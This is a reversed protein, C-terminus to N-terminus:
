FCNAPVSRYGGPAHVDGVALLGVNDGCIGAYQGAPWLGLQAAHEAAESEPAAGWALYVRLNAAESTDATAYLALEDVMEVPEGGVPIAGESAMTGFELDVANIAGIETSALPTTAQNQVAVWGELDIPENSRNVLQIVNRTIDVVQIMLRPDGSAAARPTYCMQNPMSCDAMFPMPEMGGAGSEMGGAGSEMGGAGSEMGGAGSEMGGAGSEMGGAGPEMGGAGPEMGGAGSEMGGAGTEMGGQPSDDDDGSDGSKCGAALVLVLFAIPLTRLTMTHM